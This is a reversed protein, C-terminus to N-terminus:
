PKMGRVVTGEGFKEDLERRMNDLKDQKAKKARQQKEDAERKKKQRDDEELQRSLDALNMQYFEGSELRTAGVGVLRVKLGAHFYGGDGGCMQWYGSIAAESISKADNVPDKLSVSRSHRRFDDTKVTVTITRAFVADQRLRKSVRESLERIVDEAQKEDGSGLDSAVTTEASMSIAGRDETHVVDSGRGNASEYIYLGGKAGLSAKLVEPDMAAAQGITVAGLRRLQQATSPGAGYLEEVPLPWMKSPVEEPFLTHTKDPKAFDSAMKALLKNSSVGVNVTFGLKERVERRIEDAARVGWIRSSEGPAGFRGATDTMDLFCEDISIQEQIPSFTRLLQMLKESQERYLEFDPPEIVLNPFIRLAEAVTMATHIGMKKAPLSKATVIGHRKKEDGGIISPIQRLDPAKPNERLKKVATWSLFASNV